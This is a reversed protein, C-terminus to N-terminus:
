FHNEGFTAKPKRENVCFHLCQVSKDVLDREQIFTQLFSAQVSTQIGPHLSARTTDRGGRQAARGEWLSASLLGGVKHIYDSPQNSPGQQGTFPPQDCHPKSTTKKESSQSLAKLISINYNKIEYCHDTQNPDM